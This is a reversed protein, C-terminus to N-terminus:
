VRPQQRQALHTLTVQGQQLGQRVLLGSELQNLQVNTLTETDDSLLTGDQVGDLLAAELDVTKDVIHGGTNKALQVNLLGLVGELVTEEGELGLLSSVRRGHSFLLAFSCHISSLQHVNPLAYVM